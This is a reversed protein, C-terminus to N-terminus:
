TSRIVAKVEEFRGSVTTYFRLIFMSQTYQISVNSLGVSIKMEIFKYIYTHRKKFHKLLFSFLNKIMIPSSGAIRLDSTQDM